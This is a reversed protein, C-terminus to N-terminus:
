VSTIRNSTTRGRPRLNIVSELERIMHTNAQAKERAAFVKVRDERMKALREDRNLTSRQRPVAVAEFVEDDSNTSDLSSRSKDDGNLARLADTPSGDVATMGGLSVTPSRLGGSAISLRKENKDINSALAAKGSEWEEMLMRLDSGISEYQAMLNSGLEGVEEAEDLSRDSEERLLHMKAQLSRIGHSLSGLKRLQVRVKEKAPTTPFKPTQPTPFHEEESLIRRIKEAGDEVVASANEICHVATGWRAFDPKGGTAELALLCCLFIKRVMYTRHLLAKLSKLLEAEEVETEVYPTTSYQVDTTSIDYIDFYKDLDVEEALPRLAGCGDVYSNLISSLCTHLIRRLRSCRRTQSREELRSVPPLPTSIRYGRSVLEVEQILTIAAMAAADFTQSKEVYRTACDVANQRFYLLWSRRVSAYLLTAAVLLLSVVIAIRGISTRAENGGRAWYLLWALIFAGAGTLAAGTLSIPSAQSTLQAPFEASVRQVDSPANYQSTNVDANLLQSAVIIYRFQELFRANEARGLRANVARALVYPVRKKSVISPTLDPSPSDFSVYIRTELDADLQQSGARLSPSERLHHRLYIRAVKRQLGSPVRKEREAEM